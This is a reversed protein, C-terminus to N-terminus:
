ILLIVAWGIQAVGFSLTAISTWGWAEEHWCFSAFAGTLVLWIAIQLLLFATM